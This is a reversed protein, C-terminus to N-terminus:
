RFFRPTFRDGNWSLILGRSSCGLGIRTHGSLGKLVLAATNTGTASSRPFSNGPFGGRRLTRTPFPAYQAVLGESRMEDSATLGAMM